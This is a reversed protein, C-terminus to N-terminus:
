LHSSTVKINNADGRFAKVARGLLEVMSAEDTVDVKVRDYAERLIDANFGQPTQAEYVTKRDITRVVMGLDSVLKLTGHQQVVPIAAGYLVANEVADTILRESVFPRAGDHVLVYSCGDEYLQGFGNCSSDQRREGGACVFRVKEWHNSDALEAIRRISDERVVISIEDILPSLEFASVTRDLVERGGVDMFMKDIGKMRESSGAAVIVAGVKGKVVEM